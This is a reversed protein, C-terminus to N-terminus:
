TRAEAARPYQIGHPDSRRALRLLSTWLRAIKMTTTPKLKQPM